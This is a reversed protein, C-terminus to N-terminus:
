RRGKAMERYLAEPSVGIELALQKWEGKPPLAGHWTEWADLRSAIKQLSLMESRFRLAQIERAFNAALMEAVNPDHRLRDRLRQKPVSLVRSRVAAVADCHYRDSFLSAEAVLDGKEARQLVLARGGEQYRRLEVEGDAVVFVFIVPDDQRFLHEGPTLIRERDDRPDFLDVFDDSM